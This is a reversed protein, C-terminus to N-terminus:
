TKSDIQFTSFRAKDEETTSYEDVAREVEEFKTFVHTNAQDWPQPITVGEFKYPQNIRFPKGSNTAFVTRQQFGMSEESQGDHYPGIVLEYVSEITSNAANIEFDDCLFGCLTRLQKAVNGESKRVQRLLEREGLREDEDAPYYGHGSSLPCLSCYPKTGANDCDAAIRSCAAYPRERAGMVMAPLMIRAGIQNSNIAEDFGTERAATNRVVNTEQFETNKELESLRRAVEISGHQVFAETIDGQDPYLENFQIVKIRQTYKRLALAVKKAGKVGAEDNDYLITIEKERLRHLDSPTNGAGGTFTVADVGASLMALADGEGEVLFVKDSDNELVSDPYIRVENCGKIGRIKSATKDWATKGKPSYMRVNVLEGQVYVPVFFHRRDPALGISHDILIKESWNRHEKLYELAVPDAMLKEHATQVESITPLLIKASARESGSSTNVGPSRVEFWPLHTKVKKSAELKAAPQSPDYGNSTVLGAFDIANGLKHCGFCKWGGSESNFAFSPTKHGAESGGVEHFPCFAQVWTGSSKKCGELHATFLPSYDSM